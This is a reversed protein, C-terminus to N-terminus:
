KDKIVQPNVDPVDLRPFQHLTDMAAMHQKIRRERAFCDQSGMIVKINYFQLEEL